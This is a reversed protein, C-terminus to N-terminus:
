EGKIKRLMDNQGKVYGPEEYIHYPTNMARRGMEAAKRCDPCVGVCVSFEEGQIPTPQGFYMEGCCLCKIEPNMGEERGSGYVQM